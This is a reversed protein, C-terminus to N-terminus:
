EVRAPEWKRKRRWNTTFRNGKGQNCESCLVQLNSATLALEPFMRRPKIHDVNIVIGDQATRGCCSCRGGDRELAVMRVAAWERSLLFHDAGGAAPLTVRGEEHWERAAALIGASGLGAAAADDVRSKLSSM